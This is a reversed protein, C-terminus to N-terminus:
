NFYPVVEQQLLSFLTNVEVQAAEVRVRGAPDLIAKGFPQNSQGRIAQIKAISLDIQTLVKKALAPNKEALLNQIGYGNGVESEGTYVKRISRINDSFDELSNWSYPSEEKEPDAQGISGGLPEAIKGNAVEDAIKTMGNVFQRLVAAESNFRLNDAHPQTLLEVYSKSYSIDPDEKTSWAYALRATDEALVSTVARLYEFERTTLSQINKSNTVLGNGFLLYEATHFGKLNTGLLRLVDATIARGGNLIADLDPRNLPWTDIMPDIGLAEVPGFLFAETQEWSVRSARWAKTAQDLNAQTPNDSLIQARDRLYATNDALDQYTKLMIRYGINNIVKQTTTMTSEEEPTPGPQKQGPKGPSTQGPGAKPDNKSSSCAGLALAAILVSSILLTNKM